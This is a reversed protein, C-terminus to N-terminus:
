PTMMPDDHPQRVQALLLRFFKGHNLEGISNGVLYCYHDFKAVIRGHKKGAHALHTAPLLYCTAYLQYCIADLMYCMADLMCCEAYLVCCSAALM